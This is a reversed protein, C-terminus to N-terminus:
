FHENKKSVLDELLKEIDTFLYYRWNQSTRGVPVLRKENDWRVVTDRSVGFCDAVEKVTLTTLTEEM